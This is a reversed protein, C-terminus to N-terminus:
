VLVNKKNGKSLSSPLSLFLFSLPLLPPLSLSLPLPLSLSLNFVSQNGEQVHGLHPNFGCRPYTSQGPISGVVMQNIPHHELLSLWVLWPSVGCVRIYYIIKSRYRDVKSISIEKELHRSFIVSHVM